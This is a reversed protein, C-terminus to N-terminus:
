AGRPGAFRFDKSPQVWARFIRLLMELIALPSVRARFMILLMELIGGAACGIEGRWSVGTAFGLLLVALKVEGVLGGGPFALLLVSNISGLTVWNASNALLLVPAESPPLM